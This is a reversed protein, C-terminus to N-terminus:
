KCDEIPVYRNKYYADIAVEGLKYTEDEKLSVYTNRYLSDNMIEEYKKNIAEGIAKIIEPNM